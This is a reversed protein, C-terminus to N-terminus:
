FKYSAGIGFHHYKEDELLLVGFEPRIVFNKFNYGSGLNFVLGNDPSDEELPILIKFSPNIDINGFPTKIPVTLLFTPEFINMNDSTDEDDTSEDTLDLSMSMSVITLPAYISFIYSDNSLLKYKLGLSMVKASVGFDITPSIKEYKARIDIKDSLGYALHVGIHTQIEGDSSTDLPNEDEEENYESNSIDMSVSSYFPTVEINGKGIVEAGQFESFAPACAIGFIFLLFMLISIQKLKM